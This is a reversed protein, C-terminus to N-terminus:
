VFFWGGREMTARSCQADLMGGKGTAVHKQMKELRHVSDGDRDRLHLLARRHKAQRFNIQRSLLEPRNERFFFVLSSLVSLSLEILGSVVAFAGLVDFPLVAVQESYRSCMCVVEAQQQGAYMIINYM